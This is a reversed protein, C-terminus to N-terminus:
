KYLLSNLVKIKAGDAVTKPSASHAFPSGVTTIGAIADAIADLITKLSTANNKETILSDTDLKYLQGQQTKLHIYSDKIHIETKNPTTIQLDKWFGRILMKQDSEIKWESKRGHAEIWKGADDDQTKFIVPESKKPNKKEQAYDPIKCMIFATRPNYDQMVLLVIDGKDLYLGNAVPILESTDEWLNPHKVKVRQHPDKECNTEVVCRFFNFDGQM